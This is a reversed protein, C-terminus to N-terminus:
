RPCAALGKCLAARCDAPRRAGPWCPPLWGRQRSSEEAEPRRRGGGEGPGRGEDEPGLAPAGGQGSRRLHVRHVRPQQLLHADAEKGLTPCHHLAAQLHPEARVSVRGPRPLISLRCRGKQTPGAEGRRWLQFQRM